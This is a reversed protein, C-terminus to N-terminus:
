GVHTRWQIEPGSFRCGGCMPFIQLGVTTNGLLTANPGIWTGEGVYVNPGVFALEVIVGAGLHASCRCPRPSLRQRIRPDNPTTQCATGSSKPWCKLKPCWEGRVFARGKMNVLGRRIPSVLTLHFVITDGPLVKKKFKVGDIKMFYTLYHEPDEM